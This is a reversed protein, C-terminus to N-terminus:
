GQSGHHRDREPYRDQLGQALAWDIHEAVLDSAVSRRQQLLAILGSRTEAPCDASAVANGAAVVLNRLWREYGIRLIASGQHREIFEAETWQLLELL